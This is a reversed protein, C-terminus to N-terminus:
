PSPNSGGSGRRDIQVGIMGAEHGELGGIEGLVDGDRDPRLSAETAANPEDPSTTLRLQRLPRNAMVRHRRCM